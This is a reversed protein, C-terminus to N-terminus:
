RQRTAWLVYATVAQLQEETLQGAFSPMPGSGDRLVARIQERTPQLDDLDPGITGAAGAERLTHCTACAPSAQKQFLVKGQALQQADADQAVAHGCAFLLLALGAALDQPWGCVAGKPLRM